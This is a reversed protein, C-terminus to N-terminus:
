RGPREHTDSAGLRGRASGAARRLSRKRPGIGRVKRNHGPARERAHRLQALSRRSFSSVRGNVLARAAPFSIARPARDPRSHRARHTKPRAAEYSPRWRTVREPYNHPAFHHFSMQSTVRPRPLSHPCNIKSFQHHNVLSIQIFSLQPDKASLRLM